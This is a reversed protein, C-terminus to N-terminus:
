VARIRPQGIARFHWTRLATVVSGLVSTFVEGVKPLFYIQGRGVFFPMHRPRTGGALHGNFVGLFHWAAGDDVAAVHAV